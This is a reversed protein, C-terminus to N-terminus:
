FIDRQPSESNPINPQPIPQKNSKPNRAVPSVRPNTKPKQTKQQQPYVVGVASLEKDWQSHNTAISLSDMTGRIEKVSENTVESIYDLMDGTQHATNLVINISALAQTIPQSDIQKLLEYTIEIRKRTDDIGQPQWYGYWIPFCLFALFEKAMEEINAFQSVHQFFTELDDSYYDSLYDSFEMEETRSNIEQTIEEESRQESPDLRNNEYLANELDAEAVDRKAQNFFLSLTKAAGSRVPEDMQPLYPTINFNRKERHINCLDSILSALNEPDVDYADVSEELRKEAWRIPSLLAHSSLWNEFVPILIGSLDYIVQRANQETARLINEKRRPHGNFPYIQLTQYKYTLEYLATLMECISDINYNVNWIAAFKALNYWKM